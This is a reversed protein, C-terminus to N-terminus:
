IGIAQGLTDILQGLVRTVVGSGSHKKGFYVKNNYYSPKRKGRNKKRRYKRKKAM